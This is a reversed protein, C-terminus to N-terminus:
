LKGQIQVNLKVLYKLFEFMYGLMLIAADM